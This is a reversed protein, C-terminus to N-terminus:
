TLADGGVKLDKNEQMVTAVLAVLDDVKGLYEGVNKGNLYLTGPAFMIFDDGNASLFPEESAVAAFLVIFCLLWGLKMETTIGSCPTLLSNAFLDDNKLFHDCMIVITASLSSVSIALLWL